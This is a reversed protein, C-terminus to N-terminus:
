SNAGSKMLQVYPAPPLLTPRLTSTHSSILASPAVSTMVWKVQIPLVLSLILSSEAVVSQEADLVYECHATVKRGPPCAGLAIEVGVAEDGIDLPFGRVEANRGGAIWLLVDQRRGERGIDGVKRLLCSLPAFEQQRLQAM